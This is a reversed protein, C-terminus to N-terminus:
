TICDWGEPYKCHVTHTESHTPLLRTESRILALSIRIRISNWDNRDLGDLTLKIKHVEWSATVAYDPLGFLQVFKKFDSECEDTLWLYAGNNWHAFVEPSTKRRHARQINRARNM